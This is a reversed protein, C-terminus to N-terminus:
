LKKKAAVSTEAKDKLGYLSAMLAKSAKMGDGKQARQNEKNLELIYDSELM